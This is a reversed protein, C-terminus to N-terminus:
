KYINGTSFSSVLNNVVERYLNLYEAKAINEPKESSSIGIAEGSAIATRLQKNNPEYAQCGYLGYSDDCYLNVAIEKTKIDPESAKTWRYYWITQGTAVEIAAADLTVAYAYTSQQKEIPALFRNSLLLRQDPNLLLPSQIDGAYTSNYFNREWRADQGLNKTSNELSNIQFIIQAGLNKAASMINKESEIQQNFAKWSIVNYGTKALAREIEGMELGCDTKLITESAQATGTRQDATYSICQDPAKVAVTVNNKQMSKCTQTAIIEPMKQDQPSAVFSSKIQYYSISTCASMSSVLTLCAALKLSTNKFSKM